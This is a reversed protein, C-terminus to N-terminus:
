ASWSSFVSFRQFAVHASECLASRGSAGSYFLLLSQLWARGSWAMWDAIIASLLWVVFSVEDQFGARSLYGASEAFNSARYANKLIRVSIDGPGAM